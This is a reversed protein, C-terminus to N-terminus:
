PAFTGKGALSRAPCLEACTGCGDCRAPDVVVPGAEGDVARRAITPRRAVGWELGDLLVDAEPLAPEGDEAMASKLWSLARPERSAAVLRAARVGSSGGPRLWSILAGGGARSLVDAEVRAADREEDLIEGLAVVWTPRLRRDEFAADAAAAGTEVRCARLPSFLGRLWTAAGAVADSRPDQSVRLSEGDDEVALTFGRLGREVLGAVLADPKLRTGFYDTVPRSTMIM